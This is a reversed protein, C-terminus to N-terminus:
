PILLVKGTTEGGRSRGTPRPPRPWRSSSTSASRLKGEAIWGPGRRGAVAAGRPDAIYHGLSPRTLFLSGKANLLQPDFPPVPGSSQASSRGDPRAPALCDLSKDFTTRGVGDYVVQVGKGGTLRKSRPRSTRSAHLPHGRRRRGRPRAEGEGRHLRHRHRARRAAQRDPLPAPGRRRGGRPRPLRRGAEASLHSCALYHATMGQLMAAAGQRTSVGTPSSSSGRRRCSPWSPTPARVGTYAVRDGVAVETVGPGVAAM